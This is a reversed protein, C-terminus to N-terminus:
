LSWLCVVMIFMVPLAPTNPAKRWDTLTESVAAGVLLCVYSSFCIPRPRYPATPSRPCLLWTSSSNLCVWLSVVLVLPILGLPRM